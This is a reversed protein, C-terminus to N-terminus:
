PPNLEDGDTDHDFDLHTGVVFRLALPRVANAMNESRLLVLSDAAGEHLTDFGARHCWAMRQEKMCPIFGQGVSCSDDKPRFTQM